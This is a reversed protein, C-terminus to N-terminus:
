PDIKNVPIEERTFRVFVQYGGDIKSTGLLVTGGHEINWLHTAMMQEGDLEDPGLIKTEQLPKGHIPAMLGILEKWCPQLVSSYDGAKRTETQLTVEKLKGDETWDFFLYCHLGGIKQKTHYVGNLGTRGIFTGPITSGVMTSEMLKKTVETRSDGFELTDFVARENVVSEDPHNEDLWAKDDAHLKVISFTLENGDPKLLTVNEGDRSVFAATFSKTGSPNKWSRAEEASSTPSLAFTFVALLLRPISHLTM